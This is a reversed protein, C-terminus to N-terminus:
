SYRSILVNYPSTILGLISKVANSLAEFLAVLRYALQAGVTKGYM